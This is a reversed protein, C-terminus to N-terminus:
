TKSPNQSSGFLNISTLLPYPRLTKGGRMSSIRQVAGVSLDVGIGVVTTLVGSLPDSKPGVAETAMQIVTDEDHASSQMDTLFM